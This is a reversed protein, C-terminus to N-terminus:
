RTLPRALHHNLLVICYMCVPVDICILSTVVVAISLNPIIGDDCLCCTNEADCFCTASLLSTWGGEGLELIRLLAVAFLHVPDTEIILSIPLM